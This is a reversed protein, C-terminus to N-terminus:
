RRRWPGGDKKKADQLAADFQNAAEQQLGPVVHSYTDMTIRITSHGLRESVIKPHVGQIMMLTAHSHRLDHFRVIPLGAKKLIKKFERSVFDPKVLTGNPWACVLDHDNYAAGFQLKEEKQRLRHAKLEEAASPTLSIQRRSKRTKPHKFQYGGKIRELTRRVTITEKELDVDKWQLAVIEGRRMGTTVALLVPIYVRNKRAKQLLKVTEKANLTKMETYDPRPPSVADAPNRVILMWKVAHQLAARLLRHQHLVSRPSLGGEGRIKGNKLKEAYYNQIHVPHLKQIPIHGLSPIFHRKIIEEYRDCTKASVNVRAYSELWNLLFASVTVKVPEVYTGHNIDHIIGVMASEAEKKSDFGSYWKQKPRNKEDRGLYVIVCWKKGRKRIHGRM